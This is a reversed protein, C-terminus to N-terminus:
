REWWGCEFEYSLGTVANSPFWVNFVLSQGPGVIVPAAHTVTRGSATASSAGDQPAAGFVIVIDDGVAPIVSRAVGRGVLRVNASAATTTIVASGSAYYWKGISAPGGPAQAGSLACGNTNVGSTPGTGGASYRSSTDLQLAYFMATASAPAVTPIIKVYDLFCSVGSTNAPVATLTNNFIFLSKTFDSSANVAFALGTGPTPNTLVYYSGNEAIGYRSPVGAVGTLKAM